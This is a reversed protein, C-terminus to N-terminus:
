SALLVLRMDGFASFYSNNFLLELTKSQTAGQGFAVVRSESDRAQPRRDQELEPAM